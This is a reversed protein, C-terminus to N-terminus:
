YVLSKNIQLLDFDLNVRKCLKYIYHIKEVTLYPLRYLIRLESGIENEIILFDDKNIYKVIYKSSEIGEYTNINITFFKDIEVNGVYQNIHIQKDVLVSHRVENMKPNVDIIISGNEGITLKRLVYSKEPYGVIDYWEGMYNNM